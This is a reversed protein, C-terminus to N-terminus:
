MVVFKAHLEKGDSIYYMGQPFNAINIRQTNGGETTQFKEM